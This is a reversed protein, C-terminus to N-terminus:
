TGLALAAWPEDPDNPGPDVVNDLTVPEAAGGIATLGILLLSAAIAQSCSSSKM